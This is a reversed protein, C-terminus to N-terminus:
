GPARGGGRSGIREASAVASMPRTRIVSGIRAVVPEGAARVAVPVGHLRGAGPAAGTARHELVIQAIAPRGSPPQAGVLVDALEDEDGTSRLGGLVLPHQHPKDVLGAGVAAVQDDEVGGAKLRDGRDVQGVADEM